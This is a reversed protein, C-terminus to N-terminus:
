KEGCTRANSLSKNPSWAPDFNLEGELMTETLVAEFRWRQVAELASRDLGYGLTRLVKVERLCGDLGLTGEVVVTGKVNAKRAEKTYNPSPAYLM